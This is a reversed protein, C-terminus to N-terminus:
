LDTARPSLSRLKTKKTYTGCFSILFLNYLRYNICSMDPKGTLSQLEQQRSYLFLLLDHFTRFVERISANIAGLNTNLVFRSPLTSELEGQSSSKLFGM